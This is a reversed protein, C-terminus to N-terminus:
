LKSFTITDLYNARWTCLKFLSYEYKTSVCPACWGM